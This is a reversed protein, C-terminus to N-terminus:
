STEEITAGSLKLKVPVGWDVYSKTVLAYKVGPYRNLAHSLYPETEIERHEEVIQELVSWLTGASQFARVSVMGWQSIDKKEVFVTPHPVHDVRSMSRDSRNEAVLVVASWTKLLDIVREMDERLVLTDCDMVIASDEAPVGRLMQRVTDAQGSTSEVLTTEYFKRQLSLVVPSNRRVGIMVDIEEPVSRLVHGLMTDTTGNFSIRLAYKPLDYGAERYRVSDGAAPILVRIRRDSAM